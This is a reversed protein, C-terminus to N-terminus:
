RRAIKRSTRAVLKDGLTQLIYVLILL